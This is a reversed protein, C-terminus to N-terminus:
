PQNANYSKDYKGGPIKADLGVLGKDSHMSSGDDGADAAIQYNQSRFVQLFEQYSIKGDKNVDGSALIEDIHEKCCEKGLIQRLNEKSIYGTDDCDLRDFAEAIKEEAIFGHAEITAAM